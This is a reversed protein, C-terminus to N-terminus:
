GLFQLKWVDMIWPHATWYGYGFPSGYQAYEGEAAEIAKCVKQFDEDVEEADGEDSYAWPNAGITTLMHELGLYVMLGLEAGEISPFDVVSGQKQILITVADKFAAVVRTRNAETYGYKQLTGVLGSWLGDRLNRTCCYILKSEEILEARRTTDSM